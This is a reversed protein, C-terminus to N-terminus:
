LPSPIYSYPESSATADAYGARGLSPSAPWGALTPVFLKPAPPKYRPPTKQCHNDTWYVRLLYM